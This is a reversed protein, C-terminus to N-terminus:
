HKIQRKLHRYKSSALIRNNNKNVEHQSLEVKLTPEVFNVWLVPFNM